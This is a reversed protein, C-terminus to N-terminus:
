DPLEDLVEDTHEGLRPLRNSAHSKFGMASAPISAVAQEGWHVPVLAGREALIENALIDDSRNVAAGPVGAEVMRRVVEERSLQSTWASVMEIVEKRNDIRGRQTAFRVNDALEPREMAQCLAHWFKDSNVGIAVHGGMAPFIGFPVPSEREDSDEDSRRSRFADRAMTIGNFALLSEAMSIDLYSGQGTTHRKHLATVIAGYATLGAVYDGLPFGAWTPQGDSDEALASIGSIAEAVIAVGPQGQASTANDIGFASITAVILGPYRKRLEHPNLGLRNIASERFNTV